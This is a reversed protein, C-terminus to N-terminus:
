QKDRKRLLRALLLQKVDEIASNLLEPNELDIAEEGTRLESPLKRQLERFEPALDAFLGDGPKIDGIARMLGGLADDREIMEQIETESQTELKVKEIWIRGNSLDTAASRVENTWQEMDASLDRHAKCAGSIVLRVALPLDANGRLEQHLTEIVRDLVDEGRDAGTANVLCLSWRLIDLERQELSLVRGNQVTVLTCGKPGTERTHRGQINGSFLIWPDEHILEYKHVHGLAWYDYNKALLGQISCPAYPEHGERGTACTHLLGINFYQPTPPPYAPTLDATVARTHFGQGHVAIGLGEMIVTDPSEVSFSKVNEPMRLYKTIQSSADHNGAVLLVMVGAERLKAMQASFFLGTNYDKWDGDFLDGAILVFGVKEAIALNVLNQLARRPAVRMEDVPAGEYQQLGILPSDLHIDATHIFKM